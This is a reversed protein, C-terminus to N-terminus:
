ARAAAALEAGRDRAARLTQEVLAFLAADADLVALGAATTGGPSTVRRALEAPDLPSASALMAAGEVTALALRGAQDAPMGLAAAGAAMADIFRYVFAPGSGALATVLDMLGEAALWEVTGLPRMLSELAARAAEDIGAASLAVPSKGIAAALNPMIRVHGQAQPFHAALTALEVGALMSLLLTAGGALPAIGPAVDALVQPKVGLVIADFPGQPVERVLRVGEPAQALVPDLVTFRSPPSGAALWGALMAGGMNGCGAILIADFTRM